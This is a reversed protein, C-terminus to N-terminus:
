KRKMRVCTCAMRKITQLNTLVCRSDWCKGTNGRAQSPLGSRHAWLLGPFTTCVNETVRSRGVLSTTMPRTEAAAAEPSCPTQGAAPTPSTSPSTSPTHPCPSPAWPAWQHESSGDPPCPAQTRVRGAGGTLQSGSGPGWVAWTGARGEARSWHCAPHTVSSPDLLRTFNVLYDIMWCYCMRM